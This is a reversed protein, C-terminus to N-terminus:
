FRYTLSVGIMHLDSKYEGNAAPAGTIPDGVLNNKNRSQLKQYSYALGFRFSKHKVDTGISFLHANADPISPDFTSDPVPNDQYLYGALLAVPESVQYKIGINGSWTDKWDKRETYSPNGLVLKDFNIKLRDYSSWGEWRLGVEFTLPYLGKYYVGVHVQQPLTLTTKGNTNPFLGLPDGEPLVHTVNGDIKVKIESRYSAGLSFDRHPEILIGFNYGIGTGDGKFKQGGDRTFGYLVPLNLKKELTADLILFDVGAAFAVNPTIQYSVAPNINFTRMESNTTIYRGEWDNPWKTALGFPNFVGLGASIKDTFKHTIYLTSPYFVDSKTKSTEGTLNSKFKRSPFILTTGLEIQTGELKNILAPNFFIASPDETHAITAAGQGLSSAGQTYIAFGSGYANSITCFVFSVLILVSIGKWSDKQRM